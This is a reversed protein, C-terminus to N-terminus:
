KNKIAKSKPVPFIDVYVDLYINEKSKPENKKKLFFKTKIVYCSVNFLLGLVTGKCVPMKYFM